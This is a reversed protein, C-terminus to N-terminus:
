PKAAPAAAGAPKEQWGGGLARYLQVVSALETGRTRTLQLEADFQQRQADLVELYSSVGGQYRLLALRTSERTAKVQKEQELRAAKLKVVSVAADSVERYAVQVVKRWAAAAQELRARAAEEESTLRGGQFIPALLGAGVNWLLADPTFTDPVNRADLGIFGTLSLQPLKNAVAVGVRANAGVVVQEASVLDPRRELLSAPVGAPLEPAVPADDLTAGRAVPGPSRGLLVAIENEKLAILRETLPIAASTFALDARAQNVELDSAIGGRARKEFLDLTGQRTETNARAVELELDLERLEVYAQAVGSVLSLVVARRGEETALLDALAAASQNRVRGWLDIEWFVSAGLTFRGTESSGPVIQKSFPQGYAGSAQAAIQPYFDAKAVGSLARFEEVRAVALALDQNRELAERVLGQLAPDKFFEWWPLDAISAAEKVTAFRHERPVEVEPRQYKPGVACASFALVSLALARTM